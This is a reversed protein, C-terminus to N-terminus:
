DEAADVVGFYAAIVEENNKVENPSGEFIKQGFSIVIVRDCLNLIQMNHEVIFITVGQARLRAFREISFRIEEPNMGGLPEDLLLLRPRTALARAVGLLKTFAHPLNKALEDAYSDLGVWELIQWAEEEIQAENRRYTRTNFYSDWLRSKPVLHFSASVNELVTFDAFVPSLQFTRGIGLQAIKHPRYGTIDQNRFHVRGSNPAHIGTVVNFLTTKGSGNPGILGVIEGEEVGATFNDVAVLGGFRKTLQEIELLV